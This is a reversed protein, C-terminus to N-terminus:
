AASCMVNDQALALATPCAPLKSSGRSPRASAAAASVMIVKSLNFTCPWFTDRVHDGNKPVYLEVSVQTGELHEVELLSTHSGAIAESHQLGKAGMRAPM